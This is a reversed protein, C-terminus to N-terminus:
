RDFFECKDAALTVDSLLQQVAQFLLGALRDPFCQWRGSPTPELPQPESLMCTQIIPMANLCPLQLKHDLNQRDQIVNKSGLNSGHAGAQHKISLLTLM